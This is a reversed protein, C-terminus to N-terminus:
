WSRGWAVAAGHQETAISVRTGFYYMTAGAVIAAVGVTDLVIGITADRHGAADKGRQAAWDCSTACARTVEDGITRAHHGLALGIALAATGAGATAIGVIRLGRGRDQKLPAYKPPDVRDVLNLESATRPKIEVPPQKTAVCKPRLERVLDEALPRQEADPACAIFDDYTSIATACDGSLRYAQALDFLLETERSLEYSTNWATIAARFDGRDYAARGETYLTEATPPDAFAAVELAILAIFAVLFIIVLRLKM